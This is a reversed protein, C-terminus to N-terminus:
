RCFMSGNSCGCISFQAKQIGTIHFCPLILCYFGFKCYCVFYEKKKFGLAKVSESLPPPTKSAAAEQTQLSSTLPSFHQVLPCCDEAAKPFMM